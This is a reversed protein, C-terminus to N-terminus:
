FLSSWNSMPSFLSLYIRHPLQTGAFHRDWYNSQHTRPALELAELELQPILVTRPILLPLVLASSLLCSLRETNSLTCFYAATIM